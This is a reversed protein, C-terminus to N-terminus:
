FLEGRWCHPLRRKGPVTLPVACRLRFHRPAECSKLRPSWLGVIQRQVQATIVVMGPEALAQLRSAVNAADGYIEGVPDVVLPGTEIGVRANLPPKGSGANKRNVEALALQISLAARAAREVDNEHATPYGFLAMLGDGSIKAVHGGVLDGFFGMHSPPRLATVRGILSGSAREV